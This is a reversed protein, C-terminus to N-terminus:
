YGKKKLHERVPVLIEAVYKSAANKLDQPHLLEKKYAEEMEQYSKFIIDGGFKEPREIKVESFKRFIHYEYIELIPNGEVEGLPCYAKTLKREIEEEGDNVSIFNGKSSSMKEDGYLGRIIPLHICVPAPFGLKPLNDRALMHIKRQDIGGVAVDVGLTVMDIVQMLPYMVRAVRPDEEERGILDMSRRARLLTTELALKQVNLFYDKTLQIDSGLIFKTNEPSMGMGIFCEKNFEATDRIEELSGKKNLHAHLDALLVVTEFGVKQMEVLKSVTLMHGLHIKGSPEYGVYARPMDKESLLKRLEAKTIIEEANSQVLAIKEEINM